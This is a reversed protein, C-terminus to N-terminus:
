RSRKTRALFSITSVIAPFVIIPFVKWSSSKGKLFGYCRNERYSSGATAFRFSWKDRCRYKKRLLTFSKRSGGYINRIPVLLLLPLSPPPHLTPNSNILSLLTCRERIRGYGYGIKCRENTREVCRDAHVVAYRASCILSVRFPSVSLHFTCVSADTTDRNM